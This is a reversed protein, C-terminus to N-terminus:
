KYFIKNLLRPQQEMYYRYSKWANVNYYFKEAKAPTLQHEAPSAHKPESGVLMDHLAIDQEIDSSRGEHNLYSVRACRAVSTKIGVELGYMEVEYPDVYPLHWEGQELFRPASNDIADKMMGALTYFEPQADPHLRLAFFNDWETSTVITRTWQWPALIRNAIQKHLGIMDLGWVFGCAVKSALRWVFKATELKIGSLEQKAQMGAINQGWYEPVFPEDWVRRIIKKTPIARQSSSSRSLVRHTNFEALIITPYSLELSIARTGYKNVSDEIVTALFMYINERERNQM